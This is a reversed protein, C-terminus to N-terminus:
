STPRVLTGPHLSLNQKWWITQYQCRMDRGPKRAYKELEAVAMTCHYNQKDQSCGNDQWDLPRRQQLQVPLTGCNDKWASALDTCCLRSTFIVVKPCSGAVMTYVPELYLNHPASFHLQLNTSLSPNGLPNWGKHQTQSAGSKQNNIHCKM